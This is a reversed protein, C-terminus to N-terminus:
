RGLANEEWSRWVGDLMENYAEAGLEVVLKILRIGMWCLGGVRMRGKLCMGGRMVEMRAFGGDERM